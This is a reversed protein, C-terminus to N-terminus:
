KSREKLMADAVAYAQKSVVALGNESTMPHVQDPGYTALWGHLAMGAFWDRLTMGPAPEQIIGGYENKVQPAPFAYGGTDNKSM